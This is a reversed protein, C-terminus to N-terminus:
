GASLRMRGPVTARHRSPEGDGRNPRFGGPTTWGPPRPTPAGARGRGEVARLLGPTRERHDSRATTLSALFAECGRVGGSAAPAGGRAGRNGGPPESRRVDDRIETVVQGSDCRTVGLFDDVQRPAPRMGTRGRAHGRGRDPPPPPPPPVDALALDGAGAAGGGAGWTTPTTIWCWSCSRAALDARQWPAAARHPGDGPGAGPPWPRAIAGFPRSAGTGRGRTPRSPRPPWYDDPWRREQYDSNRCFDLIDGPCACTSWSSGPRTPCGPRRASGSSPPSGM